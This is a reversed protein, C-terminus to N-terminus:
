GEGYCWQKTCEDERFWDRHPENYTNTKNKASEQKDSSSGHLGVRALTDPNYDGGVILGAHDRADDGFHPPTSIRDQEDVITGGIGGCRGCFHNTGDHDTMRDVESLARSQLGADLESQVFAGVNNHGEVGISLM